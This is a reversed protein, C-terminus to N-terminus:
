FLSKNQEEAVLKRALKRLQADTHGFRPTLQYYAGLTVAGDLPYAYRYYYPSAYDPKWFSSWGWKVNAMLHIEFRGLMVGMGVGGMLGYTLRRDYDRFETIYQEYTSGAFAEDLSRAIKLRYGGYLGVKAMLKFHEGFDIHFHSLMYAEPVTMVAAYAGSETARTGTEKNTKFKYGEYGLQAGFEIGMNPFIVFMTYQRILSFGFVPYKLQWDVLRTPNYYGYQLSAGGYVGVMWYDNPAKVNVKVSDLYANTVTDPLSFFEKQLDVQAFCLPAAVLWAGLLTLLKKM